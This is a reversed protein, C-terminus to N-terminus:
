RSIRYTGYIHSPPAAAPAADPAPNRIVTNSQTVASEVKLVVLNAPDARLESGHESDQHRTM